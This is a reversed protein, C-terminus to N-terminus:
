RVLFLKEVISLAAPKNGRLSQVSSLAAHAQGYTLGKGRWDKGTSLYLAWTQRTSAPTNEDKGSAYKSVREASEPTAVSDAQKKKEMEAFNEATVFVRQAALTKPWPFGDKALKRADYSPIGDRELVKYYNRGREKTLEVKLLSSNGHIFIIGNEPPISIPKLTLVFSERRAKSEANQADYEAKWIASKEDEIKQKEAERTELTLLDPIGFIEACFPWVENEPIAGISAVVGYGIGYALSFAGISGFFRAVPFSKLAAITAQKQSERQSEDKVIWYRLVEFGTSNRNTFWGSEEGKVRACRALILKKEADIAAYRVGISGNGNQFIAKYGGPRASPNFSPLKGHITAQTAYRLVPVNLSELREISVGNELEDATIDAITDPAVNLVRRAKDDKRCDLSELKELLTQTNM